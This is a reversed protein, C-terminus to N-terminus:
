NGIYLGAKEPHLAGVARDAASPLAGGWWLECNIGNASAGNSVAPANPSPASGGPFTFRKWKPRRSATQNRQRLQLRSLPKGAAKAAADAAAAAYSDCNCCTADGTAYTTGACGNLDNNPAPTGESGPVLDLPPLVRKFPASRPARNRRPM